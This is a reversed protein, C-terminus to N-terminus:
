GPSAHGESLKRAAIKTQVDEHHKRPLEVETRTGETAAAIRELLAVIKAENEPTM